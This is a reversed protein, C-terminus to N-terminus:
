LQLPKVMFDFSPGILDTEKPLQPLKLFKLNYSSRCHITTHVFKQEFESKMNFARIIELDKYRWLKRIFVPTFTFIETFVLGVLGLFIIMLIGLYITVIRSRHIETEARTQTIMQIFQGPMQKQILPFWITHLQVM